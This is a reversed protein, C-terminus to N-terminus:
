DRRALANTTQVDNTESSLGYPSFPSPLTKPTGYVVYPWKPEKGPLPCYKNDDEYMYVYYSLISTYMYNAIVFIIINCYPMFCTKPSM